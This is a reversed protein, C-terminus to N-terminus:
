VEEIQQEQLRIILAAERRKHARPQELVGRSVHVLNSFSTYVNTRSM